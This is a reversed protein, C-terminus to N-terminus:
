FNNCFRNEYEEDSILRSEQNSLEILREFIDNAKKYIEECESDCDELLSEVQEIQSDIRARFPNVKM